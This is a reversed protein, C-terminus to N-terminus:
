HYKWNGNHKLHQPIVDGRNRLVRYVISAQSRKGFIQKAISAMSNGQARLLLIAEQKKLPVAKAKKLGESIHKRVEDSKKRGRGALGIKRMNERSWERHHKSFHDSNSSCLELNEIRNDTRNENRHHIVHGKPIPGHIAEWVLRHEFPWRRCGVVKIQVYGNHNLRKTGTPKGRM